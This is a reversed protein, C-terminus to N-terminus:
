WLSYRSCVYRVMVTVQWRLSQPGVRFRVHDSQVFGYAEWSLSARPGRAHIRSTCTWSPMRSQTTRSTRMRRVLRQPKSHSSYCLMLGAVQPREHVRLFEEVSSPPSSHKAYNRLTGQVCSTPLWAPHLRLRAVSGFPRYSNM